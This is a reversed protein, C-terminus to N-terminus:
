TNKDILREKVFNFQFKFENITFRGAPIYILLLFVNRILIGYFILPQALLEAMSVAVLYENEMGPVIFEVYLEELFLYVYTISFFMFM